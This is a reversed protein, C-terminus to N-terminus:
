GRGRARWARYGGGGARGRDKRHANRDRVLRRRSVEYPYDETGERFFGLRYPRGNRTVAFPLALTRFRASGSRRTMCEHGVLRSPRVRMRPKKEKSTCVETIRADQRSRKNTLRAVFELIRVWESSSDGSRELIRSRTCGQCVAM